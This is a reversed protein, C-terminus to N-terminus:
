FPLAVWCLEGELTMKWLQRPLLTLFPLLRARIIHYSLEMLVHVQLEIMKKDPDTRSVIQLLSLSLSLSNLWMVQVHIDCSRCTVPLVYMGYQGSIVSPRWSICGGHQSSSPTCSYMLLSALLVCVKCYCEFKSSRNPGQSFFRFGLFFAIKVSYWSCM